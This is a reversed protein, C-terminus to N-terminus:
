ASEQCTPHTTDGSVALLRDLPFGCVICHHEPSSPEQTTTHTTGDMLSPRPSSVVQGRSSEPVARSSQGPFHQKSNKPGAKRVVWGRLEALRVAATTDERQLHHGAERLMEALKTTNVGPESDVIVSVANALAELHEGTRVQVRSGAGSLSLRRTGPDYDLRDEALDVDRGLAKIFRHGTDEDWTMTLISDPWDELASSGRTREGEWGTHTTLVVESVGAQEAVEDLHVLWPTVEAPDNQSKGTYARGFPDVILVEGNQTRIMEVLEARGDETALLNRRARLNVVYLGARPVGIDDM